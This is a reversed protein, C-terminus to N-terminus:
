KIRKSQIQKETRRIKKGTRQIKKQQEKYFYMFAKGYGANNHELKDAIITNEPISDDITETNNIDTVYKNSIIDYSKTSCENADDSISESESELELLGNNCIELIKQEENKLKQIELELKQIKLDIEVLKKCMKSINSNKLLAEIAKKEAMDINIDRNKNEEM